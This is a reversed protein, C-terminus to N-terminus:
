ETGYEWNNGGISKEMVIVKLILNPLLIDNNGTNKKQFPSQIKQSNYSFTSVLGIFDINRVLSFNSFIESHQVGFYTRGILITSQKLKTLKNDNLNTLNTLNTIM